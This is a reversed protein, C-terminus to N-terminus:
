GILWLQWTQWAATNNPIADINYFRRKNKLLWWPIISFCGEVGDCTCAGAITRLGVIAHIIFFFFM